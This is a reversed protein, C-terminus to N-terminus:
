NVYPIFQRGFEVESKFRFFHRKGNTQCHVYAEKVDNSMFNEMAALIATRRAHFVIKVQGASKHLTLIWM